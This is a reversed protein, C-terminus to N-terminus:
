ALRNLVVVPIVRRTKKEYEAFWPTRAAMKALLQTREPEDAVRARAGFRETGVEVEVEPNAVLNFYWSPNTPAGGKSAIVVLRDGDAIYVLPNVRPSGTKAGTTHLLLLPTGKFRGGVKGDNARFEEIIATNWDSM